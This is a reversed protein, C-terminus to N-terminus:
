RPVATGDDDAGAARCRAGALPQMVQRIFWKAGPQYIIDRMSVTAYGPAMSERKGLNV